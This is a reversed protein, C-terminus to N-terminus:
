LKNSKYKMHIIKRIYVSVHSSNEKNVTKCGSKTVSNLINNKSINNYFIASSPLNHM